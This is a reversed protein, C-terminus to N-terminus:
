FLGRPGYYRRPQPYYYGQQADDPAAYGSNDYTQYPQSYVRNTGRPAPYRAQSSSGDAPYIYGDDTAQVQPQYQRPQPTLVVPTGTAVGAEHYHLRAGGAEVTRSTSAYAVTM